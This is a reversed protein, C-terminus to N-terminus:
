RKAEGDTPLPTFALCDEALEVRVLEFYETPHENKLRDYEVRMLREFDSSAIVELWRKQVTRVQQRIEFRVTSM